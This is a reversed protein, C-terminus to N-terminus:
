APTERVTRLRPKSKNLKLAQGDNGAGRNRPLTILAYSAANGQRAVEGCFRAIYGREHLQRLARSMAARNSNTAPRELCKILLRADAWGALSVRRGRVSAEYTPYGELATLVANHIKGLGRKM